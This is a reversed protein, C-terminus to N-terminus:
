KGHNETKEGYELDQVAVLAAAGKLRAQYVPFNIWWGDRQNIDVLVLKGKVDADRYSEATGNGLYVMSFREFGHTHFDTQYAGLQFEHERGKKDTFRMVAKEFEWGDVEIRDKHVDSLGLAQMERLIMEGTEWEARSGATRYGLAANSKYGEMRRALGYSYDTDVAQSLAKEWERLTKVM